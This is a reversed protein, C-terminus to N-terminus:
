FLKITNNNHKKSIESGSLNLWVKIGCKGYKLTASGDAYDLFAKRTSFPVQGGKFTLFSARQKRTFRGSFDIRYGSIGENDKLINKLSFIIENVSFGQYLKIEIYNILLDSTITSDKLMVFSIKVPKKFHREGSELVIRELLLLKTDLVFRHVKNSPNDLTEANYIGIIVHVLGKEKRIEVGGVLFNFSKSLKDSTFAYHCLLQVYESFNFNDLYNEKYLPSNSHRWQNYLGLRVGTSNTLRGM